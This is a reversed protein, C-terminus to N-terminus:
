ILNEFFNIQKKTIKLLNKKDFYYTQYWLIVFKIVDKISIKIKWKLIKRAKNSNLSLLKAEKFKFNQRKKIIWRSYKWNKQALNLITAVDFTKRLDPGFNFSEGSIKKNVNLNYGLLLYGSLAELVHQWPRTAKPNRIEVKKNISWLKICDPILRDEAWDGGGIVNGARATAIKIHKSEKFFSQFYSNFLIEASAKSASYPDQGGLVDKENYPRHTEINKYCKDSTILVVSCKKKYNLLSEIVNKTGVLNSEWTLNPNDYSKSVLSQAALHFIFDPKIKFITKKVKLYDKIDFYYNKSIKEVGCANFFSPKTPINNSIGYIKAGLSNLWFSLWSGKFGTHGTILIKKNKYINLKEKFNKM